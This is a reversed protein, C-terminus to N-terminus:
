RGLRLNRPVKKETSQKQEEEKETSQWKQSMKTNGVLQGVCLPIGSIFPRVIPRPVCFPSSAWLLIKKQGVIGGKM